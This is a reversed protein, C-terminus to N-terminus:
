EEKLEGRLYKDVLLNTLYAHANGLFHNVAFLANYLQLTEMVEKSEKIDVMRSEYLKESDIHTEYDREEKWWSSSKSQNDLLNTLYRYQLKINEPFYKMYDLLRFWESKNKNVEKYGYLKKFGENLIVKMKGRMFRKDYDTDALIFYKGAVMCDCMTMLVFLSVSCITRYLRHFVDDSDALRNLEDTFYPLGSAFSSVTEDVVKVFEAKEEENLTKEKYQVTKFWQDFKYNIIPFYTRLFLDEEPSIM